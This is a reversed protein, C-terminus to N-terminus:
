FEFNYNTRERWFINLQDMYASFEKITMATTTDIDFVAKNINHIREKTYPLHYPGYGVGSSNLFEAIATNFKWYLDNQETSRMLSDDNDVFGIITVPRKEITLVILIQNYIADLEKKNTIKM